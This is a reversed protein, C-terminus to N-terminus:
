LEGLRRGISAEVQFPVYDTYQKGAAVMTKSMIDVVDSADKEKCEVVIADHVTLRVTAMNDLMPRLKILASLCIDSAISQPLFSLAENIVDKRNENTILYFSRKRGFPTVLDDGNLVKSTIASQWTITKPILSKFSNLLQTAEDLPMDFERGISAAGRGYSLGYFFSKVKVREEKSWNNPGYIQETLENFIDRSPDNFIDALYEDQALTTIVRGEAQSYDVQVLVNNSDEITFQNRIRKERDINQMNPNRSALRGSTTGHLLYTTYVKGHTTRKSLGKVYTGFLKSVRRHELLLDIFEAVEGTVKERLEKLFDAKTTKVTIRKEALYRTVQPPSNPNIEYGVLAQIKEIHRYIEDMYEIALDVSYMHDFNLGSLEPHILENAAKIMFNHAQWARDDFKSSFWEYLDWTCSVDFANYKYLVPRPVDAYNGGRPIYKKIVNKWSPANLKEMALQELGHQGPREDLAYSALMTDFWLQQIGVLPSLGRLDFKGNHAIIKTNSLFERFGDIVRQDALSNEGFVVAKGRAYAVGICLLNYEEPHAYDFDKEVGVEIDIVVRDVRESLRRLAEIAIDPDDFVRYEPEVWANYKLGKIKGVDAVFSPFSDPSRLCYAPHWTPIVQINDALKSTRPPGVRLKSITRSDSLVEHAATNGVAIITEAGSSLIEAHLRERCAAIAAKPPVETPGHPRCLCVNTVLAQARKIGNYELVRDLIAGSPGMFPIGIKAEQPGPAEGMVVVKIDGLPIQSPVFATGKQYPCEECKSKPHKRLM